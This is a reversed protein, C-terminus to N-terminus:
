DDYREEYWGDSDEEHGAAAGVEEDVDAQSQESIEWAVNVSKVDFIYVVFALLLCSCPDNICSGSWTNEAVPDVITSLMTYSNTTLLSM